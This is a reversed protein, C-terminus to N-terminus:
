SLAKEFPQSVIATVLLPIEDINIYIMSFLLEAISLEEVSYYYLQIIMTNGTQKNTQKNISFIM